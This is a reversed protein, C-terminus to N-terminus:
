EGGDRVLRVRERFQEIDNGRKDEGVQEIWEATMCSQPIAANWRWVLSCAVRYRNLAELEKRAIMWKLWNIM